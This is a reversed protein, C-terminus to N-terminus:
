IRKWYWSVLTLGNSSYRDPFLNKNWFMTKSSFYYLKITFYVPKWSYFELLFLSGLSAITSVSTPTAERNGAERGNEGASRGDRSSNRTSSRSRSTEVPTRRVPPGAFSFETVATEAEQCRLPMGTLTLNVQKTNSKKQYLPEKRQYFFTRTVLSSEPLLTTCIIWIVQVM